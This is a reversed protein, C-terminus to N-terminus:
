RIVKPNEVADADAAALLRHYAVHTYSRATDAYLRSTGAARAASTALKSAKESRDSEHCWYRPDRQVMETAQKTALELNRSAQNVRDLWVKSDSSAAEASLKALREYELACASAAREAADQEALATAYDLMAKGLSVPEDMMM